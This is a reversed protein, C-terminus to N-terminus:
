DELVETGPEGLKHLGQTDRAASWLSASLRLASSPLSKKAYIKSSSRPSATNYDGNHQVLRLQHSQM